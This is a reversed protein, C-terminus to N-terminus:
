FRWGRQYRLMNRYYRREREILMKNQQRQMELDRERQERELTEQDSQQQIRAAETEAQAKVSKLLGSQYGAITRAMENTINLTVLSGPLVSAYISRDVDLYFEEGTVSVVNAKGLYNGEMGFVSVEAGPFFIGDLIVALFRPPTAAKRVVAGYAAPTRDEPPSFWKTKIKAAEGTKEMDAIAGNVFDLFEKDGQRIGFVYEQRSILLDPIEYEGKPTTAILDLLISEDSTFADIEGKLLADVAKEYDTFPIIQGGQCVNRACTESPSGMVAGVKKGILDGLTKIKGKKAIFGQGTVLYPNSFDIAAGLTSGATLNAALLDIDGATLNALKADGYQSRVGMRKAIAEVYDIDYGVVLNADRALFSFPPADFRVGATLVGKQKVKEMTGQALSSSAFALCLFLPLLFIVPRKM